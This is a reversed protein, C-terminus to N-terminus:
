SKRRTLFYFSTVLSTQLIVAISLMGLYYLPGTLHGIVECSYHLSFVLLHSKESKFCGSIAYEIRSLEESIFLEPMIYM